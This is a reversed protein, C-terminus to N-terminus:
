SVSSSAAYDVADTGFELICCAASTDVKDWRAFTCPILTSM